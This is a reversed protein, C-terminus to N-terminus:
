CCAWCRHASPAPSAAPSANSPVNGRPPSIPFAVAITAGVGVRLAHRFADSEVGLNQRLTRWAQRARSTGRGQQAPAAPAGGQDFLAQTVAQTTHLLRDLVPVMTALDPAYAM